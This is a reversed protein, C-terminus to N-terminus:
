RIFKMRPFREAFEKLMQVVSLAAYDTTVIQFLVFRGDGAIGAFQARERIVAPDTLNGDLLDTLFSDYVSNSADRAEWEREIYVALVDLMMQFLDMLGRTLPRNNCSMVVHAFYMNGFRFIKHVTVYKAVACSDDM